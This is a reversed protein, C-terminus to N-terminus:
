LVHPGYTDTWVTGHKHAWVRSKSVCRIFLWCNLGKQLEGIINYFTLPVHELRCKKCVKLDSLLVGLEMIRRGEKWDKRLVYKGLRINYYHPYSAMPCGVGVCMHATGFNHDNEVYVNENKYDDLSILRPYRPKKKGRGGNKEFTEPVPSLEKQRVFNVSM